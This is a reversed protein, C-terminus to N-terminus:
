VLAARAFGVGEEWRPPDCRQLEDALQLNLALDTPSRQQAAYLVELAKKKAKAKNLARALLLATSPRAAAAEPRGALEELAGRDQLVDPDRLRDRWEDPDALGAVAALGTRRPPRAEAQAATGKGASARRLRNVVDRKQPDLVWSASLLVYK